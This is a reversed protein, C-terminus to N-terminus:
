RGDLGGGRGRYRLKGHVTWSHVACRHVLLLCRLCWHLLKSTDRLVDLEELNEPEKKLTQLIEDVEKKLNANELGIKYILPKYYLSLTAKVNKALKEKVSKVQIVLLGAKLTDKYLVRELEEEHGKLKALKKKFENFSLRKLKSKLQEKKVSTLSKYSKMKEIFANPLEMLLGVVELFRDKNEM